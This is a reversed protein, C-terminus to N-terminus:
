GGHGRGGGDCGLVQHTRCPGVIIRLWCDLHVAVTSVVVDGVPESDAVYPVYPLVVGQDAARIPRGCGGLDEDCLKGVPTKMRQRPDCALANWSMGFWM